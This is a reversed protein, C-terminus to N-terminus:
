KRGLFADMPGRKHKNLYSAGMLMLNELEKKTKKDERLIEIDLYTEEIPMPIFEDAQYKIAAILEKEKLKPMDVIQSYTMNDPMIVNVSKKHIRLNAYLRKIVDVQKDIIVQNDMEFFNLATDFSGMSLLEIKKNSLKLDCMRTYKENIELAFSTESM